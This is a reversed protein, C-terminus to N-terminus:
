NQQALRLYYAQASIDGNEAAQSALKNYDVGTSGDGAPPRKDNAMTMQKQMAKDRAALFAQQNTFVTDFDQNVMAEATERALKEDYGLSLYRHVHQSVAKDHRLSELEEMIAKDHNERELQAQEDESLKAKLQRKTAALESATKDFTSKAIMNKTADARSVLDADALAAEVDAFSMDEKYADGLFEKLNM